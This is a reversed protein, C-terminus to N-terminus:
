DDDSAEDKIQQILSKTAQFDLETGHVGPDTIDKLISLPLTVPLAAVNIVTKVLAGFISM